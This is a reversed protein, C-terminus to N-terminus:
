ASRPSLVFASQKSQRTDIARLYKKIIEQFVAAQVPKTLYTDCGALSGKIRDFPSSKGTLMIVPTEKKVKDKKIQKCVQYGDAGPLVVDLFVLDYNSGALCEFAKEASEAMHATIGYGRLAIELQARVTPSDDVVLALYRRTHPVPPAAPDISLPAPLSNQNVPASSAAPVSEPLYGLEQITVDDMLNLLKSPVIPRKVGRQGLLSEGTANIMIAPANARSHFLKWEEVAEGNDGDVVFLEPAGLRADVLSYSRPRSSSVLTLSKLLRGDRESLGIAAVRFKRTPNVPQNGFCTSNPLPRFGAKPSGTFRLANWGTRLTALKYSSQWVTRPSM